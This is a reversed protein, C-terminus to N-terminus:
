GSPRKFNLIIRVGRDYTFYNWVWNLLVQMRNRFGLLTLLHFVLWVVWALSGRLAVRNYLWAVARSRGITAMLGRDVYHFPRVPRDDIVALINQAALKGQQMAPPIMMPHAESTDSEVYASDGVVFIRQADPVQLSPLVAVRGAPGAKVGLWGAVGAAEVGASWILTTTLISEGDAFVVRDPEVQVVPSGLRVEVGLTELQRVAANRLGIPYPSLIHDQAEALIVRASLDKDPFERRLVHNYLEYVAGATELGTPGGGVVVITLLAARRLADSEWAALEFQLLIHNRLAIADELDRLAFSHQQLEGNGFYSVRSGAALVLYDWSETRATGGVKILATRETRDIATVEGQLVQVNKADRFIGRIPYAIESPDLACTAVQYLLPTFTHYNNRDVLLVDVARGVLSRAAVLGGFGAGVILVRPTM